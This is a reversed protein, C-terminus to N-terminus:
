AESEPEPDASEPNILGWEKSITEKTFPKGNLNRVFTAMLNLANRDTLFKNAWSLHQANQTDFAPSTVVTSATVGETKAESVAGTDATVTPKKTEAKTESVTIVEGEDNVEAGMEEPTYSVGNICDPFVSRAMESVCRAHLMSRPYQSWSSKNLLGARKADEITYRFSHERGGRVCRVECETNSRVPFWIQVGPCNKYIQSLMLEASMTPKGKVIHIHSCAQMPPVGCERGKLIIAMFQSATKITEPLLNTKILEDGYSKWHLWTDKSPLFESIPILGNSM